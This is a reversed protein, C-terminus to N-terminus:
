KMAIEPIVVELFGERIMKRGLLTHWSHGAGPRCHM